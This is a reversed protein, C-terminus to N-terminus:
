VSPYAQLNIMSIIQKQMEEVHEIRASGINRQLKDFDIEPFLRACLHNTKPSAGMLAIALCDTGLQKFLENLLQKLENEPIAAIQEFDTIRQPPIVPELIDNITIGYLKSLRLLMEIDPLAAATEWKSVSQRTIGLQDTLADQTYNHSKRLFQLYRSIIVTNM